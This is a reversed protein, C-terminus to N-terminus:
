EIVELRGWNGGRILRIMNESYEALMMEIEKKM